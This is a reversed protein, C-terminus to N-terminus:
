LKIPECDRAANSRKTLRRLRASETIAFERTRCFLSAVMHLEPDYRVLLTWGIALAVVAIHWEYQHVGHWFREILGGFAYGAYGLPLVWLAAGVANVFFFVVPPMGTMGCAAPIALRFGFIYRSFLLLLISRRRIWHQVRAYKPHKSIKKEFYARSRTRSLHYVAENALTSALAATVLVAVFNLSGRHALFASALLTADGEIICGLFILVYGYQLLDSESM